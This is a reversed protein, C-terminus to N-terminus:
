GSGVKERETEGYIVNQNKYRQWVFLATVVLVISGKDTPPYTVKWSPIRNEVPRNPPSLFPSASLSVQVDFPIPIIELFFLLLVIEQM